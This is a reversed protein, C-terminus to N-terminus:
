WETKCCSPDPAEGVEPPPPATPCINCDILIDYECAKDKKHLLDNLLFKYQEDNYCAQLMLTPLLVPTQTLQRCCTSHLRLDTVSIFCEV